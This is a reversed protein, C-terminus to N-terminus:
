AGRTEPHVSARALKRRHRRARIRDGHRRDAHPHFGHIVERHLQRVERRLARVEGLADPILRICAAWDELMLVMARSMGYIQRLTERLLTDARNQAIMVIPGTYAAQFSLMLNLFVFPYTDWRYAPGAANWAVWAALVVSQWIIFPWSGVRSAVVEAARQGLTREASM